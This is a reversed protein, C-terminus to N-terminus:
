GAIMDNGRRAHVAGVDIKQFVGQRTEADGGGKDRRIIKCGYLRRDLWVGLDDEALHNAIRAKIHHIDRCNGFDAFFCMHRQYQIAGEVRRPQQLRDREAGVDDDMRQRFPHAPVADGDTARNDIAAIEVPALIVAERGDGTWVVRHVFDIEVLFEAWGGEGGFEAGLAHIIEARGHRRRVGEVDQLSDLRQRQAHLLMHVICSGHQFEQAPM